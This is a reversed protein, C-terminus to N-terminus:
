REFFPLTEFISDGFLAEFHRQVYTIISVVVVFYFFM